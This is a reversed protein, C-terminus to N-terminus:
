AGSLLAAGGAMVGPYASGDCGLHTLAGAPGTRRPCRPHRGGQGGRGTRQGDHHVPGCRAGQRSRPGEPQLGWQDSSGGDGTCARGDSGLQGGDVWVRGGAGRWEPAPAEEGPALIVAVPQGVPVDDGVQASIGALVGSAPAEVETVAKDTEIEMLPEGQTVAEGERKFWTLLRGTDQSMGLAPM